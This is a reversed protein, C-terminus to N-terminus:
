NISQGRRDGPRRLYTRTGGDFVGIVGNVDLSRAPANTNIGVGGNARILFQDNGTSAFPANTSDAWVFTGQHNAQAQQGAAFTYSM